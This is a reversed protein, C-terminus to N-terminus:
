AQSNCKRWKDMGSRIYKYRFSQQCHCVTLPKLSYERPGVSAKKIPCLRLDYLMYQSKARKARRLVRETDSLPLSPEPVLFAGNQCSARLRRSLPM